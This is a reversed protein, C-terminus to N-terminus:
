DQGQERQDHPINGDCPPAEIMRLEDCDIQQVTRGLEYGLTARHRAVEELIHSRRAEALAIMRDIREIADINHSLTLAMVAHMTLGAAALIRDARRIASPKRAIWSQVLDLTAEGPQFEPDILGDLLPELVTQLGKHATAALLNTKLRRLRWIEWVLDVIDHVWIEELVDTPKVTASVEALLKRYAAIDEGEILPPPGFPAKRGATRRPRSPSKAANVKSM